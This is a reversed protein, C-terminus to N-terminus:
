ALSQSFLYTVSQVGGVRLLVDVDLLPLGSLFNEPNCGLAVIHKQDELFRLGSLRSVLHIEFGVGAGTVNLCCAANRALVHYSCRIFVVHPVTCTFITFKSLLVDRGVEPTLSVVLGVLTDLAQRWGHIVRSVSMKLFASSHDGFRDHLGFLLLRPNVFFPWVSCYKM